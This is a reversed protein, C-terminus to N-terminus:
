HMKHILLFLSLNSFKKPNTACQTHYSIGLSNLEQAVAFGLAGSGGTIVAVRGNLDLM